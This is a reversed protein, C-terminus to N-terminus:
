NIRMINGIYENHFSNFNIVTTLPMDWLKQSSAHVAQWIEFNLIFWVYIHKKEFM